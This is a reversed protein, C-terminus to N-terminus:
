QIPREICTNPNAKYVELKKTFYNLKFHLDSCIDLVLYPPDIRLRTLEHSGIGTEKMMQDFESKTLNFECLQPNNICNPIKDEWVHDIKKNRIEINALTNRIYSYKKLPLFEYYIEYIDSKKSYISKKQIFKYNKEFYIEGVKSIIYDDAITKIEPPIESIFTRKIELIRNSIQSKSRYFLCFTIALLLLLLFLSYLKVYTKRNVKLKPSVIIILYYLFSSLFLVTGLSSVFGWIIYIYLPQPRCFPTSCIVSM